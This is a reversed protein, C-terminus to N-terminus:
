LGHDFEDDVSSRENPQQESATAKRDTDEKFSEKIVMARGDIDAFEELAQGIQHLSAIKGFGMVFTGASGAGDGPNDAGRQM